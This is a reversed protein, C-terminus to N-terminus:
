PVNQLGREAEVLLPQAGLKEALVRAEEFASRAADIEEQFLLWEGRAIQTYCLLWPFSTLRALRLAEDFKHQAEAHDGHHAAIQGLVALLPSQTEAHQAQSAVALGEEAAQRAQAWDGQRMYVRALMGLLWGM